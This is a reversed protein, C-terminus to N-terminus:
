VAWDSSIVDMVFGAGPDDADYGFPAGTLRVLMYDYYGIPHHAAIPEALDPVKESYLVPHATNVTLVAGTILNQLAPLPTWTGVGPVVVSPMFSVGYITYTISTALTNFMRAHFYKRRYHPYLYYSSYSEAQGEEPLLIVCQEFWHRESRAIPLSKPEAHYAIVDLSPRHWVILEGDVPNDEDIFLEQDPDPVFDDARILIKAKTGLGPYDIDMRADLRGTFPDSVSVALEKCHSGPAQEDYYYAKITQIDSLPGICLGRLSTDIRYIDGISELETFLRFYDQSLLVSQSATPQPYM